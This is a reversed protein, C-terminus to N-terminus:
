NDEKVLEFMIFSDWGLPMNFNPGYPNYDNIYAPIREGYKVEDVVNEKYSEAEGQRIIKYKVKERSIKVYDDMVALIKINNAMGYEELYVLKGSKVKEEYEITIPNENGSDRILQIICENGNEVIVPEKVNDKNRIASFAVIIVGIIVIIILILPILKKM